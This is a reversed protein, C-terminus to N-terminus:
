LSEPQTNRGIGFDSNLSMDRRILDRLYEEADVYSGENLRHNIWDEIEQGYEFGLVDM